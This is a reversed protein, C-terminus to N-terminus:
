RSRDARTRLLVLAFVIVWLLYAAINIREWVGIWPTPLNRAVGPSEAGTLGGFVLMVVVTLASFVRFRRGYAAAGFAIVLMFLLGMIGTWVIHLVDTLGAEVGRQHMPPWFIALVAHAMLLVAATRLARSHSASLWVGWGFAAIFVTYFLSLVVWLTRTPAGIASLESVTQSSVSYGEYLMPVFANMAGYVLSALIGCILLLNITPAVSGSLGSAGELGAGKM